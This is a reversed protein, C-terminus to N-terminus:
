PERIRLTNRGRLCLVPTDAGLVREILSRDNTVVYDARGARALAVLAGDGYPRTSGGNEGDDGNGGDNGGSSGAEVTRARGALDRGVSAATAAAGNGSSLRDLEAIVARPVVAEYTGLVRDLEDFLRLDAEVPAMLASADLAVTPRDAAM